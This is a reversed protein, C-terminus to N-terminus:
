SSRLFLKLLKPTMIMSAHNVVSRNLANPLLVGEQAEFQVLPRPPAPGGRLRQGQSVAADRGHCLGGPQRAVGDGGAEALRAGRRPEGPVEDTNPSTFVGYVTGKSDFVQDGIITNGFSNKVADPRTAMPNCVPQFITGGNLSICEYPLNDPVLDHFSVFVKTPATGAPAGPPTYTALWERDSNAGAPTSDDHSSKM